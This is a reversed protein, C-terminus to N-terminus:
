RFRENQEETQKLRQELELQAQLIKILQEHSLGAHSGKAFLEGVEVAFGLYVGIPAIRQIDQRDLDLESMRSM